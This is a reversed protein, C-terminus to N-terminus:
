WVDDEDNLADSEGVVIETEWPRSDEEDDETEAEADEETEAEAEDETEDETEDEATVEATVDSDVSTGDSENSQDDTVTDADTDAMAAPEAPPEPESETRTEPQETQSREVDDADDATDSIDRLADVAIEDPLAYQEFQMRATMLPSADIESKVSEILRGKKEVERRVFRAIRRAEKVTKKLTEDDRQSLLNAAAWAKLQLAADRIRAPDMEKVARNVEELTERIRAAVDKAVADADHTIKSYTIVIRIKHWKTASNHEAARQRADRITEQVLAIREEPVLLVGPSIPTGLARIRQRLVSALRTTRVREDPEVVRKVTERETTETKIGEVEDIRPDERVTEYTVAGPVAPTAVNYTVIIAPRIELISRRDVPPVAATTTDIM